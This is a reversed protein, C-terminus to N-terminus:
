RRLLGAPTTDLAWYARSFPEGQPNVVSSPLNIEVTLLQRHEGAGGVAVATRDNPAFTRLEYESRMGPGLYELTMTWPARSIEKPLSIQVPSGTPVDLHAKTGSVCDTVKISCYKVPGAQVSKGNAYFTIQPPPTTTNANVVLVGVVILVIALVAAGGLRLLITKGSAPRSM